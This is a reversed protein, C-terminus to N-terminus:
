TSNKVSFIAEKEQSCINKIKVVSKVSGFWSDGKVIKVRNDFTGLCTGQVMCVTCATTADLIYHFPKNKMGEKSECVEMYTMINPTPCVSTKCEVGLPEPKRIIYSIHPLGGFRSTHPRYTSMSEDLVCKESSLIDLKRIHNFNEIAGQCKCWPDKETLDEQEL